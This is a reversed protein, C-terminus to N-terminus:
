LSAAKAFDTGNVASIRCKYVVAISRSMSVSYAVEAVSVVYGGKYM